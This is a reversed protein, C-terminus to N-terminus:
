AQEGGFLTKGAEALKRAAKGAFKGPRAPGAAEAADLREVYGHALLWDRHTATPTIVEGVRYTQWALKFRVPVATGAM